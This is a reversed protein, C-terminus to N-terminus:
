PANLVHAQQLLSITEGDQTIALRFSALGHRTGAGDDYSFVGAVCNSVNNAVLTKAVAFDADQVPQVALIPYDAFRWLQQTALDCVYSVPMDVVFFRKTPSRAPFAPLANANDFSVSAASAATIAALNDGNYANLGAGATNYIVLCDVRGDMCSAEGAAGTSDIQAAQALGGLVDFSDAALTFDLVDGAGTGTPEARYRGGTLTRLFEFATRTGDNRIRVSNPLALRAERTMLSLATDATDVMATRRQIANFARFPEVLLATGMVALAGMLVIVMIMEILTFGHMAHRSRSLM